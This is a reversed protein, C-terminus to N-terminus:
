GYKNDLFGLITKTALFRQLGDLGVERGGAPVDEVLDRQEFRVKFVEVSPADM